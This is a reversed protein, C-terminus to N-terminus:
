LILVKHLNIVQYRAAGETTCGCGGCEYVRKAWVHWWWTRVIGTSLMRRRLWGMAEPFVM